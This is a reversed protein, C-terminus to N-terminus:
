PHPHSPPCLAKAPEGFWCLAWTARIHSIHRAGSHAVVSRGVGYQWQLLNRFKNLPKPVTANRRRRQLASAIFQNVQDSLCGVFWGYVSISPWPCIELCLVCVYVCWWMVVM